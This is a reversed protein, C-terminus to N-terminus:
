PWLGQLVFMSFFARMNVPKLGHRYVADPHIAVSPFGHCCSEALFSLKIDIVNKDNENV